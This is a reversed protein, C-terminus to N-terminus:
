RLSQKQNSFDVNRWAIQCMGLDDTKKSANKKYKPAFLSHFGFNAQRRVLIRRTPRLEIM